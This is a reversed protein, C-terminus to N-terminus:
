RHPMTLLNAQITIAKGDWIEEWDHLEKDFKTPTSKRDGKGPKRTAQPATGDKLWVAYKKSVQKAIKMAM